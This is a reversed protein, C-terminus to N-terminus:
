VMTGVRDYESRRGDSGEGDGVRKRRGGCGFWCLRRGCGLFKGLLSWFLLGAAMVASCGEFLACDAGQHATLGNVGEAHVWLFISAQEEIEKRLYFSPCSCVGNMDGRKGGFLDVVEGCM